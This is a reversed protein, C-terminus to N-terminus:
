GARSRAARRREVRVLAVSGAVILAAGTFVHLGPVEGWIAYGLAFAWVLGTYEIPALASAPAFRFGEYLFFQGLGSAMGLGLMLALSFPDPGHWRGALLPACGLAFLANTVLM